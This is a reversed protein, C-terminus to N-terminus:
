AAVLAQYGSLTQTPRQEYLAEPMLMETEGARGRFLVKVQGQPVGEAWSGYAAIVFSEGADLGAEIADYKAQSKVAGERCEEGHVGRLGGHKKYCESCLAPAPSYDLEYRRPSRLSDGLVKYPCRRKRVGGVTGCGDCSLGQRGSSTWGYGYGM